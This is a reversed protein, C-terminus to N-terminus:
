KGEGQIRFPIVTCPKNRPNMKVRGLTPENSGGNVAGADIRAERWAKLAGKPAECLLHLRSENLTYETAMGHRGELHREAVIVEWDRLLMLARKVTPLSAGSLKCLKKRGPHVAGKHRHVFWHNLFSLVVDREGRTLNSKRVGDRLRRRYSAEVSSAFDKVSHPRTPLRKIM